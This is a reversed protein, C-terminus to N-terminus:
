MYRSVRQKIQCGEMSVSVNWGLVGHVRDGALNRPSGSPVPAGPEWGEWGSSRSARKKNQGVEAVISRGQEKDRRGWLELRVLQPTHGAKVSRSPLISPM